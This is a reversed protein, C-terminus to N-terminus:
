EVLYGSSRRDQGADSITFILTDSTKTICSGGNSRFPVIMRLSFPVIVEYQWRPSDCGEWTTSQSM